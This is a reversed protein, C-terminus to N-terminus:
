VPTLSNTSSVSKSETDQHNLDVWGHWLLKITELKIITSYLSNKKSVSLIFVIPLHGAYGYSNYTNVLYM